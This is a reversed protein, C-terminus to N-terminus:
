EEPLGPEEGQGDGERDVSEVEPLNKGTVLLHQPLSLFSGTLLSSDKERDGFRFGAGQCGGAGAPPPFRKRAVTFFSADRTLLEPLDRHQPSGGAGAPPPEVRLYTTGGSM